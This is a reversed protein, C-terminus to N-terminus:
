GLPRPSVGHILSVSLYRPFPGPTLHPSPTAVPSLALPTRAEGRLGQTRAQVARARGLEARGLGSVNPVSATRHRAPRVRSGLCKSQPLVRRARPTGPPPGYVLSAVTGRPVSRWKVHM